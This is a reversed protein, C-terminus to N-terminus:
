WTKSTYTAHFFPDQWKLLPDVNLYREVFQTVLFMVPQFYWESAVTIHCGTHWDRAAARGQSTDDPLELQVFPLTRLADEDNQLMEEGIPDRVRFIRHDFPLAAAAQDAYMMEHESLGEFRDGKTFDEWTIEGWRRLLADKDKFNFPRAEEQTTADYLTAMHREHYDQFHRGEMGLRQWTEEDTEGLTFPKRAQTQWEDWDSYGIRPRRSIFIPVSPAYQNSLDHIAAAYPVYGSKEFDITAVPDTGNVLINYGHYMDGHHFVFPKDPDLEDGSRRMNPLLESMHQLIESVFPVRKRNRADDPWNLEDGLYDMERDWISRAMDGVADWPGHVRDQGNIRADFQAESYM